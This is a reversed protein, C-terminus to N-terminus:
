LLRPACFIGCFLFPNLFFELVLLFTLFLVNLSGRGLEEIFRSRDELSGTDSGFFNFGVHKRQRMTLLQDIINQFRGVLEIATRDDDAVITKGPEFFHEDLM